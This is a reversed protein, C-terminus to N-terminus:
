DEDDEDEDNWDDDDVEALIHPRQVGNGIFRVDRPDDNPGSVFLPKGNHGMPFTRRAQGPDIDGWLHAFKAYDRHPAFGSERAFCIADEVLKRATAPDVDVLDHSRLDKIFERYDSLSLCRGFADKAGRCYLDMLFSAVAVEGPSKRRAIMIHCIGSPIGTETMLCDMIEGAAAQRMQDAMTLNRDRHLAKHKAQRKRKQKALQKQRKADSRAM